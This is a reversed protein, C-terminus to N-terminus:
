HSTINKLIEYILNILRENESSQIIDIIIEKKQKM